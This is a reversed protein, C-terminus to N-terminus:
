ITHLKKRRKQQGFRGADVAKCLSSITQAFSGKKLQRGIGQRSEIARGMAGIEETAPPSTVV